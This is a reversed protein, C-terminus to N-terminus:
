RIDKRVAKLKALRDTALRAIEEDDMDCPAVGRSKLEFRIQHELEELTPLPKPEAKPREGDGLWDRWWDKKVFREPDRIFEKQERRYTAAATVIADRDEASLKKWEQFTTSKGRKRRQENPPYEAWFKEFLEPYDRRPKAANTKPKTLNPKTLNPTAELHDDTVTQCSSATVGNCNTPELVDKKHRALQRRVWGPCHEKWDHVLLRNVDCEDLWGTEVLATVLLEPDGPWDCEIAIEENSFRGIDGQPTNVQVSIWLLELLGAIGRKSEGLRRQLRKFKMSDPTQHKM